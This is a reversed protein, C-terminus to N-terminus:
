FSVMILAVVATILVLGFALLLLQRLKKSGAWLGIGMKVMTNTIAAIIISQIGLRSEISSGTLKSLTITIADIDSFGAIASSIVMGKDGMNEHAYSVILIIIVYIIGFTFAGQLDLPNRNTVHSVSASEKRTTYYLYVPFCIASLFIISVPLLLQLMLSKNFIFTWLLIRLFMISSAALIAISCNQVDQPMDRSKRAFIWTVATSSVLGGFIGSLLIGRRSGLFKILLHGVFGLGSTLLIVWGIEHPNLNNYPGYNKNPLFPFILLALIVFRIFAYWEEVTIKGAISRMQVKYSLLVIIVVMIVLSITLYGLLCFSGLLFTLLFTMETTAGVDGKQAVIFYSLGALIAVALLIILYVVPSFLFYLIAGLYGLLATFAFTRIGAFSEANEKLADRQRELGIVLGIGLAVFLRIFFDQQTLKFLETDIIFQDM